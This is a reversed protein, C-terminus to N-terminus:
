GAPATNKTAELEEPKPTITPATSYASLAIKQAPSTMKKFSDSAQLDEATAYTQKLKAAQEPSLTAM